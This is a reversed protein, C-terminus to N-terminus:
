HCSCHFFGKKPHQPFCGHSNTKLNLVLWIVELFGDETCALSMIWSDQCQWFPASWYKNTFKVYRVIVKSPVRVIFTVSERPHPLTGKLSRTKCMKVKSKTACSSSFLKQRLRYICSMTIPPRQLVKQRYHHDTPPSAQYIDGVSSLRPRARRGAVVVGGQCIEVKLWCKELQSCTNM